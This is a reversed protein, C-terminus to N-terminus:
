TGNKKPFDANTKCNDSKASTDNCGKCNCSCGSQRGTLQRFIRRGIFFACAVIVCTIIVNQWM